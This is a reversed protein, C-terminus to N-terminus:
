ASATLFNPFPSYAVSTEYEKDIHYGAQQLLPWLEEMSALIDCNLLLANPHRAADFESVNINIFRVSQNPVASDSHTEFDSSHTGICIVLDADKVLKHSASLTEPSSLVSTSLMGIHTPQIGIGGIGSCTESECVPIGTVELLKELTGTGGSYVLGEGAIIIPRKSSLIMSLADHLTSKDPPVVRYSDFSGSTHAGAEPIYAELENQNSYLEMQEYDATFDTGNFRINTGGYISDEEFSYQPEQMGYDGQLYLEEYIAGPVLDHSIPDTSAPLPPPPIFDGSGAEVTQPSAPTTASVPQQLQQTLPTQPTQQVQPPPQCQQVQPTPQRQPLNIKDRSSEDDSIVEDAGTVAPGDEEDGSM